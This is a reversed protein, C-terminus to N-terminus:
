RSAAPDTDATLLADVADTLALLDHDPWSRLYGRVLAVLPIADLRGAPVGANV